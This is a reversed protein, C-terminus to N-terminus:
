KRIEEIPLIKLIRREIASRTRDHLRVIEDIAVNSRYENILRADEEATWKTGVNKNKTQKERKQETIRRAQEERSEKVCNVRFCDADLKDYRLVFLSLTEIADALQKSPKFLKENTLPDKGAALKKVFEYKGMCVKFTKVEGKRTM